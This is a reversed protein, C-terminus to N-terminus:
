DLNSDQYGLLGGVEAPTENLGGSQENGPRTPAAFADLMRDLNASWWAVHDRPPVRLDCLRAWWLRHAASQIQWPDLTFATAYGGVFAAIRELDLVGRDDGFLRTAARVLEGAFPAITLGDWGVVAVVDGTYAGFRLWAARFDGHVYGVTFTEAEPPQHDAFEVLLERREMLADLVEPRGESDVDLVNEDAANEDAANADAAGGSATALARDIRALADHVRPTPVLMSQQVPPTLRDLEGHLRGLLGGLTGCATLSLELTDRPRGDIWPYLAYRQHGTVVLLRGDRAPIPDPVPLGAAALAATVELQVLAQRRTIGDFRRLVLPGTATEVRWARDGPEGTLPAPEQPESVEWRRLLRLSPPRVGVNEATQTTPV